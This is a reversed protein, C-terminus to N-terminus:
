SHLDAAVEDLGLKKLKKASPVTTETDWDMLELYEKVLTDMDLKIGALPGRKLAPIGISRGAVERELPNHGERLNFAHRITGIREGLEECAELSCDWGTVATIFEPVSSCNMSIYGFMCLGAANIVHMLNVLTSQTEARGTYVTMEFEPVDLGEPPAILEGGQTHRGPTADMLYATGLGPTFKADHM